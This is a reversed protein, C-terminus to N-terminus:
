GTLAACVDYSENLQTASPRKTIKYHEVGHTKLM